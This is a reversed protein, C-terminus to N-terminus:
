SINFLIHGSLIPIGNVIAWRINELAAEPQSFEIAVDITKPDLSDRLAQNELDIKAVLKHGREEALQGILKGMKGYGLLAINM